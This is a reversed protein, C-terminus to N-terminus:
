DLRKIVSANVDRFKFIAKGKHDKLFERADGEKKFSVLENGMPGYVDSGSVYFAKYGDTFDLRYYDTVFIATINSQKKGPTYQGPNAYYKFMDKTGDFVAYTGDRFIIQAAFDQYKAVFMGCVPCKDKAPLKVPKFEGGIASTAFALMLLAVVLFRVAKTVSTQRLM